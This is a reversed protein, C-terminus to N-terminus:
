FSKVLFVNISVHKPAAVKERWVERRRELTAPELGGERLSSESDVGKLTLHRGTM